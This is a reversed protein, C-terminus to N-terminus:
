GQSETEDDSLAPYHKDICVPCVTHSFDVDSHKHIYAEIQEYYGEDNRINKCFSCIPLIGRLTKVEALTKRLEEILQKREQAIEKRETIEQQLDATQEAVRQELTKNAKQLNRHLLLNGLAEGTLVGIFHFLKIEIEKWVRSCSCQHIGFQWPKGMRPYIAMSLQSLVGFSKTNEALPRGGRGYIVPLNNDLATQFIEAVDPSMDITTNKESAGPFAPVTREIPVRWSPANPDCPFLLWARDCQFTELIKGCINWLLKEVDQENKIIDTIAEVKDIWSFDDSKKEIDRAM